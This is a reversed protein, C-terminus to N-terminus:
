VPVDDRWVVEQGAFDTGGFYSDRYSWPGARHCLDHAGPRSPEAPAGDGAYCAAKAAVIFDELDQRNM